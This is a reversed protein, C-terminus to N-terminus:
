LDDRLHGVCCLEAGAFQFGFMIGGCNDLFWYPMEWRWGEDFM